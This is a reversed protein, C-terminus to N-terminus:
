VRRGSASADWKLLPVGTTSAAWVERDEVRVRASQMTTRAPMAIATAKAAQILMRLKERIPTQVVPAVNWRPERRAADRFGAPIRRERHSTLM